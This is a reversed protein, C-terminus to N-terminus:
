RTREVDASAADLSGRESVRAGRAIAQVVVPSSVLVFAALLLGKDAILSFGERVLVAAAIALTGLVTAGTYHLRDFANRMLAVGACALLQAGIGLVLLVVVVADRM